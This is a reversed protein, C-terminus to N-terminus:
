KSFLNGYRSKKATKNPLPLSTSVEKKESFELKQTKAYNLLMEDCKKAVDEVSMNFHSEQKKFNIFEETDAIQAYDDSNLIEMKAPESEYKALKDAIAEYNSRIENLKAYETDTLYEVHLTYREGDFAVLDGDKTYKQGYIGNYGEYVFYDDFVGSIWYWDNDAEEYPILLAYLAAKIDEHSIAFTKQFKEVEEVEETEITEEVKDESMEETIVEESEVEEVSDDTPTEDTETTEEVETVEDETDTPETTVDEATVEMEEFDKVTPEEKRSNNITLNSMGDLKQNIIDLMEIVTQESFNSNSKKKFDALKINSGSMGPNIQNGDEDLGLITVGAFYFDEINLFHEKANYDFERIALEVSVFCENERRIIESAQSYEDFIFGDVVVYTKKKDEDYELHANCSEPIVGVPMEDYVVNGDEDEHMNHTWFHPKGDVTHIYGLIPRNSFSPLAAEMVSQAINSGNLNKDIHCAQLTVKTLGETDLNESFSLKGNVQVVINSDSDKASFHSSKTNSSYYSYLDDLTLLRKKM